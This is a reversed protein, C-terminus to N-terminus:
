PCTLQATATVRGCGGGCATVVNCMAGSSPALDFAWVTYTGSSGSACQALGNTSVSVGTTLNQQYCAGWTASLPTVKAPNANYYGTATFQVQGNPYNQADATPPAITMSQLQRSSGCALTLVALLLLLCFLAASYKM